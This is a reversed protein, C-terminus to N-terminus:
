TLPSENEAGFGSSVKVGRELWKGQDWECDVQSRQSAPVDPEWYVRLSASVKGRKNPVALGDPFYRTRLNTAATSLKEGMVTGVVVSGGADNNGEHVFM